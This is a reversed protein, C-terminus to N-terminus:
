RATLATPRWRKESAPEATAAANDAAGGIQQLGEAEAPALSGQTRDLNAPKIRLTRDIAEGDAALVDVTHRGGEEGSKVVGQRGNLEAAGVLGKLCVRDGVALALSAMVVTSHSFFKTFLGFWPM